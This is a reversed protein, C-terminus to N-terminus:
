AVRVLHVDTVPKKDSLRRFFRRVAIRGAERVADDDTLDRRRLSGISREIYAEAAELEDAELDEDLLGRCSLQPPALLNGAGDMVLTLSAAGNHLM